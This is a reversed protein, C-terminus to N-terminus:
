SFAPSCSIVRENEDESTVDTRADFDEMLEFRTSSLPQGLRNSIAAAVTEVSGSGVRGTPTNTQDTLIRPPRAILFRVNTFQDSSWRALGEVASKAAVYHPWQLPNTRVFESSVIVNWGSKRELSPLFICMPVTVLALSQNVFQHFRDMTEPSFSLAQIPPCANCILIDIGDHRQKIQDLMRRCCKHDAANGQFPLIEGPADDALQRLREIRDTSHEYLVHVSCGKLALALAMAAGLGRSGGIVVGVKGSLSQDDTLLAKLKSPITEPSESRLFASLRAEALAQGGTALQATMEVLDYRGDLRQLGVKYDIEGSSERIPHFIVRAKWFTADRGPLEMGVFYSSWLFVALQAWTFGKSGLGWQKVLQELHESAVAYRGGIEMGPSLDAYKWVASERRTCAGVTAFHAFTAVQDRFRFRFKAMLRSGDHIFVLAEEAADKRLEARYDIGPHLPNCFELEAENLAKGPRESLCGAAALVGLIGFVVPEGYATERAYDASTHLPNADHSAACFLQLDKPTFRIFM